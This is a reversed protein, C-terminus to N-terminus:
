AQATREQRAEKELYARFEPEPLPKSYYYGQIYDCGMDRLVNKQYETEIGEAVAKQGLAHALSIIMQVIQKQHDLDRIFSIDMKLLDIPITRLSGLSSQGSGFDDLEIQFGLAHIAEIKQKVIQDSIGLSETLEVHLLSPDIQNELVPRLLDEATDISLFDRRSANVSIPVLSLGLERWQRLDRCATQWIYLDLKTIFGNEEFLPIFEGPPLFGYEPHVWRVLAEAGAIRGTHPDHKPQYWVQFQKQRLAEEMCAEIAHLREMRDSMQQDYQAVIRDYQRSITKITQSLRHTLVGPSLDTPINFYVAYKVVFDRIPAQEHIKADFAAAEQEPDRDMHRRLVYFRDAHYRCTLLSESGYTRIVNAIHRLLENGGEEGFRENLYNFGEVNVLMLDYSDEPDLRLLQQLHHQFATKTYLGTLADYEVAQLTAISERLRILAEMRRLIVRPNYPKTIFDSAGMALCKEEDASITSGTTVIIPVASLLADSRTQELFEYGNMRPMQVDLLILSLERYFMRLLELGEQGDEAELVQYQESLIEKLMERNIANDEIVLVTRKARSSERLLENM